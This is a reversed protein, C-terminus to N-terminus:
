TEPSADPVCYVKKTWAYVVFHSAPPSPLVTVTVVFYFVILVATFVATNTTFFCKFIRDTQSLIFVIFAKIRNEGRDTSSRGAQFRM